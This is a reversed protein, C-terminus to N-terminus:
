FYFNWEGKFLVAKYQMPENIHLNNWYSYVVIAFGKVIHIVVFQPFNKFLHSYLVVQGAEQSIQICTLFCRNSSSVSSYAPESKPFSHM